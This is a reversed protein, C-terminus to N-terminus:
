QVGKPTRIDRAETLFSKPIRVTLVATHDFSEPNVVKEVTGQCLVSGNRDTVDVKDKAEPVPQFEYPLSVLGEEQWCSGDVVFIAMGPCKAVCLGCGTCKDPNLEPLSNISGSFTIANRPCCKSCPNCPIEEYCEIVAVPWKDWIMSKAEM